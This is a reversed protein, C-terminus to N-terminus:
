PIRDALDRMATLRAARKRAELTVRAPHSFLQLFSTRDRSERLMVAELDIV